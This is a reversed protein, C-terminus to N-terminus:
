EGKRGSALKTMAVGQFTTEPPCWFREANLCCRSRARLWVSNAGGCRGRWRLAATGPAAAEIRGSKPNILQMRNRACGARGTQKAFLAGPDACGPISGHLEDSACLTLFKEVVASGLASSEFLLCAGDVEFGDDLGEGRRFYIFAPHESGRTKTVKQGSSLCIDPAHNPRTSPM